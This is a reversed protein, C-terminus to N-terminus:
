RALGSIWGERRYWDWTARLGEDLPPPEPLDLDRRLPTPDCLWDGALLERAKDANFPRSERTVTERLTELAGALRVLAAPLPVFRAHRDGTRAISAALHRVSVPEPDCVFGVRGSLHPRGAARAVALAADGAPGVQVRTNPAPVPMFGREAMRFYTLLGRDRPGYLVGPRLVIWPGKWSREVAREGELKSLGYWSVPRPSDGEKVPEGNEAPGAAAQSSVYVFLAAPCAASAAALLKETGGVNVARYDDLTRAKVLGAVHVVADCGALAGPLDAGALDGSVVEVALGELGTSRSPAGRALARVRYGESLLAKAVHWGLFGTGGTLFAAPM